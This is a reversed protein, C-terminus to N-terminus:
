IKRTRTFLSFGVFGTRFIFGLFSVCGLWWKFGYFGISLVSHYDETISPSGSILPTIETYANPDRPYRCYIIPIKIRRFIYPPLLPFLKFNVPWLIQPTIKFHVGRGRSKIRSIFKYQSDNDVLNNFEPDKELLEECKKEILQFIDTQDDIEVDIEFPKISGDFGYRYITVTEVTIDSNNEKSSIHVNKIDIASVTSIGSLIILFSILIGSIKNNFRQMKSELMSLNLKLIIYKRNYILNRLIYINELRRELSSWM